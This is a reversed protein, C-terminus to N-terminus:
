RKAPPLYQQRWYNSYDARYLSDGPHETMATFKTVLVPENRHFLGFLTTADVFHALLGATVLLSGRRFVGSLDHGPKTLLRAAVAVGMTCLVGVVLMFGAGNWFMLKFLAGIVLISMVVGSLIKLLIGMVSVSQGTLEPQFYGGFFYLVSLSGLSVILLTAGGTVLSVLMVAGILAMIVLMREMWGFARQM